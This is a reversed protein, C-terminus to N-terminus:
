GGEGGEEGAEREVMCALELVVEVGVGLGTGELEAVVRGVGEDEGLAGFGEEAELAGGAEDVDGVVM